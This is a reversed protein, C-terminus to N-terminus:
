VKGEASNMPISSNKSLSIKRLWYEKVFAVRIEISKRCIEPAKEENPIRFATHATGTSNFVIATGVGVGSKWFWKDRKGRKVGVATFHM